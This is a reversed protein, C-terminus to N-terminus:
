FKLGAERAADALAKLRGSYRLPGRDFVVEVIGAKVAREGIMKGVEAATKMNANNANTKRLAKELSSASAVTHGKSDDIVQASINTNSRHVSLRIAGPNMSRLKHRVRRARRTVNNERVKTM